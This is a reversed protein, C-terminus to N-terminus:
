AAAHEAALYGFVMGAGISSGGQYGVGLFTPAATNGCAYLGDIAQGQANLVRAHADTMLGASCVGGMKLPLAYYPPQDLPALQPNRKLQADGANNRSFASQGRRFVSDRGEAVDANFRQTTAVLGQPDIGLAAALEPLTDARTISPHAAQGPPANAVPYRERFRDDFIMFAPQNAYSRAARDYQQLAMVVDQFQTEDCFRQGQANVAIAGPMPLGRLGVSFFADPQGPVAAGVFLSNNVAVRSIGAGAAATLAIADGTNTPAFPNMWNPLGEFRRVLEPNGEYGGTALIVGRKAHVVTGDSLVVGSVKGDHIMLKETCCGLRITAGRALMQAVLHGILAEGCALLGESQRRRVEDHPWNRRNAFGGWAVGDSWAVGSVNHVSPRISNAFSGLAARKILEPEVMRRGDACSGPANPAFYDPLGLALRLKVGQAMLADLVRPAERVYAELNAPVAQGGAVFQAYGLATEYDDPLGAASALRNNPIWITGLSDATGGGLKSAKEILCTTLGMAAGVLAASCGAGGSGLVVLDFEHPQTM